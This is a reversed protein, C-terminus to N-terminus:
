FIQCSDNAPARQPQEQISRSNSNNHQLECHEILAVPDPFRLSCVPCVEAGAGTGSSGVGVPADFHAENVHKQLLDANAKSLGCIPCQFAEAASAPAQASAAVTGKMRREATGRLSNGADVPKAAAATAAPKKGSSAASKVAPKPKTAQSEIRNLFNNRTNVPGSCAHDESARHSLCVLKQCKPCTFTNSPGMHARCDSRACRTIKKAAAPQQSCATNYHTTWVENIDQSKDFKVTKGCIPCDISTMDKSTAGACGHAQYSRHDLCYSQHCYDCAFPLFDKQGCSGLACHRGVHEFEM